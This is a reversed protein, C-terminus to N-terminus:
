GAVFHREYLKIVFMLIITMDGAAAASLRRDLMRAELAMVRDVGAASNVGGRNLIDRAARRTAEYDELGGRKLINTDEGHALFFLRMQAYSKMRLQLPQQRMWRFATSIQGFQDLVVGRVGLIGYRQYAWEGYTQSLNRPIAQLDQLLHERCIRNALNFLAALTLATGNATALLRGLSGALVVLLFIAGKHTNVNGTAAFMAQEARLGIERLAPFLDADSTTSVYGCSFATGICARFSRGSLLLKTYDMDQHAGSAAPGVLGFHPWVLPEEAVAEYAIAEVVAALLSADPPALEPQRILGGPVALPARVTNNSEMPM